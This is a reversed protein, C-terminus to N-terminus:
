EQRKQDQKELRNIRAQCKKCYIRKSEGRKAIFRMKCLGCYKVIKYDIRARTGRKKRSIGTKNSAM